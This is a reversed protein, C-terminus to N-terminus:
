PELLWNLKLSLRDHPIAHLEMETETEVFRNWLLPTFCPLAIAFATLKETIVSHKFKATIQITLCHRM